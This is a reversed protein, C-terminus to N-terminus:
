IPGRQRKSPVTSHVAYESVPQSTERLRKRQGDGLVLIIGRLTNRTYGSPLFSVWRRLWGLVTDGSRAHVLRFRAMFAAPFPAWVDAGSAMFARVIDEGKRLDAMHVALQLGSCLAESLAAADQEQSALARVVDGDMLPTCVAATLQMGACRMRLDARLSKKTSALSASLRTSASALATTTFFSRSVILRIANTNALHEMIDELTPKPSVPLMIQDTACNRGKSPCPSATYGVKQDNSIMGLSVEEQDPGAKLPFQFSKTNGKGSEFLWDPLDKGVISDQLGRFDKQWLSPWSEYMLEM